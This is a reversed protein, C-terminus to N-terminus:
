LQMILKIKMIALKIIVMIITVPLVFLLRQNGDTPSASHDSFKAYKSLAKALIVMAVRGRDWPRGLAGRAGARTARRPTAMPRKVTSIALSTM